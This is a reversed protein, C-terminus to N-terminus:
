RAKGESHGPVRTGIEQWFAENMEDCLMEMSDKWKARRHVQETRRSEICKVLHTLVSAGTMGVTLVTLGNAIEKFTKAQGKMQYAEQQLEQENWIDAARIASDTAVRTERAVMQTVFSLLGSLATAATVGWAVGYQMTERRNLMKEHPTYVVDTLVHQEYETLRLQIIDRLIHKEHGSLKLRIQGSKPQHRVLFSRVAKHGQPTEALTMIFQAFVDGRDIRRYRLVEAAEVPLGTQDDIGPTDASTDDSRPRPPPVKGKFEQFRDEM